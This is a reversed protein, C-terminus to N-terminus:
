LGAGQMAADFDFPVKETGSVDPVTPVATKDVRQVKLERGKAKDLRLSPNDLREEIAMIADDIEEISQGTYYHAIDPDNLDRISELNSKITHMQVNLQALVPQFKQGLRGAAKNFATIESATLSAGYMANRFVNRFTEYSATGVNGGVEDVMYKKFDKLTSDLLGTEDPTLETGATNGLATLDRLNRITRKNETSMKFDRLDELPSIYDRYIKARDVRSMDKSELWNMEDLSSRLARVDTVEKQTSTKALNKYEGVAEEYTAGPNNEKYREVFRSENTQGTGQRKASYYKDLAELYPVNEEEMITNVAREETSSLVGTGKGSNEIDTLMQYAEAVTKAKGTKILDDVVREKMDVKSKTQGSRLMQTIRAKKEKTALEENTLYNTFGTGAYLDNMNVIGRKDTGTFIVLDKSLEPDSYIADLDTYGMKRLMSDNETSKTLQDVRVVDGYMKAGIPNGKVQNLWTNLHRTDKDAEFRRFGDYTQTQTMQANTKYANAELQQMALEDARERRPAGQNYEELQSQALQQKSKAEALRTAKLDYESMDTSLQSLGKAAGAWMQADAM